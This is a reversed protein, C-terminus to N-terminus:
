ASQRGLLKKIQTIKKVIWNGITYAKSNLLLDIENQKQNLMDQFRQGLRWPELCKWKGVILISEPIWSETFPIIFINNLRLFEVWGDEINLGNHTMNQLSIETTNGDGSIQIKEILVKCYLNEIPQWLLNTPRESIKLPYFVQFNEAEIDNPETQKADEWNVGSSYELWFWSYAKKHSILDGHKKILSEQEQILVQQEKVQKQILVEETKLEDYKSIVKTSDPINFLDLITFFGYEYRNLHYDSELFLEVLSEYNEEILKEKSLIYKNSQKVYLNRILNRKKLENYKPLIVSDLEELSLESPLAPYDTNIESSVIKRVSSLALLYPKYVLKFIDSHIKYGLSGSGFTWVGTSEFKLDHFHYFILSSKKRSKTGVLQTIGNENYLEYQQVNWPAVGGGLNELEVVCDFRTMWDDLYKQDGFKGDEFRDYCWEICCDVWYNLVEMGKKNNKFTVFQVCYKGSDKSQDYEPSYRHETILVSKDGLEKHLPSPDSFFLIDADVYTCEELNYKEISYKITSSACTWCYERRTRNQKIRLLDENEFELLSIITAHKLNLRKLENSALDDFAFIYLHFDKSFKELSFYLALGRSLFRSDFLTCYNFKM